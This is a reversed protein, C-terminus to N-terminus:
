DKKPTFNLPVAADMCGGKPAPFQAARFKSVVCAALAADGSTNSTVSASCVSGSPSVRVAVTMKGELTANRRLATNYCTRSSGARTSLATTLEATPAGTCSGSCGSPGMAVKPKTTTKETDKKDEEAVEEETPPPPPANEFVPPEEQSDSKPAAPEVIIEPEHGSQLKWFVLGAAALLLVLGLAVLGGSGSKSPVGHYEDSMSPGVIALRTRFRSVLVYRRFRGM